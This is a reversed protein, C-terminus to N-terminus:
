VYKLVTKALTQPSMMTGSELASSVLENNIYIEFARTSTVFSKAFNGAMYTVLGAIVKNNKITEYIPPPTMQLKAFIQDGFLILAGVALQLGLIASCMITAM